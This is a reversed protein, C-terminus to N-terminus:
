KSASNSAWYYYDLTTHCLTQYDPASSFDPNPRALLGIHQRAMVDLTMASPSGQSYASAPKNVPTIPEVHGDFFAVNGRGNPHRGHFQEVGGTASPALLEGPYDLSGTPPIYGIADAACVTVSSRRIQSIHTVVGTFPYPSLQALAYTSQIPRAPLNLDKTEPCQLVAVTQLYRGLYGSQFTYTSGHIGTVQDYAWYMTESGSPVLGAPVLAGKAESAYMTAAIAIQRLNSACVQQAAARRSKAISPLLLGVLVAIIGIVVLLEVLTFGFSRRGRAANSQHQWMM